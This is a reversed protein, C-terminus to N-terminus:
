SAARCAARHSYGLVGLLGLGLLVLSAPEPITNISIVGAGGNLGGGADSSGGSLNINSLDGTFAGGPKVDIPNPFLPCPFYRCKYSVLRKYL